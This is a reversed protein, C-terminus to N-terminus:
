GVPEVEAVLISPHEEVFPVLGMTGRSPRLLFEAVLQVIGEDLRMLLRLAPQGSALFALDTGVTAEHEVWRHDGLHGIGLGRVRGGIDQKVAELVLIHDADGVLRSLGLVALPERSGLTDENRAGLPQGLEEARARGTALVKGLRLLPSPYADVREGLIVECAGVGGHCGVTM